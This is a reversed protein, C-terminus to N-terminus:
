MVEYGFEEAMETLWEWFSEVFGRFLSLEFADEGVQSVHVGVHAMQTMACKGKGFARPHVDVPTGKSIVDRANSGSISIVVRGHSQDSVSALGKLKDALDSFLAGEPQGDALVFWQEFGCWQVTVKRGTACEGPATCAVGFHKKMAESLAKAKGKRAIVSVISIPHRLALRVGPGDTGAAGHRGQRIVGELPSRRRVLTQQLAQEAM